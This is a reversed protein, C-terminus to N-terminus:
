SIHSRPLSWASAVQSGKRGKLSLMSVCYFTPSAGILVIILANRSSTPGLRPLHSINGWPAHRKKQMPLPAQQGVGTETHLRAEVSSYSIFARMQAKVLGPLANTHICHSVKNSINKQTSESIFLQRTQRLPFSVVPFCVSFHSLNTNMHAICPM